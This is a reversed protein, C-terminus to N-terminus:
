LARLTVTFSYPKDAPYCYKPLTPAGWSDDGGVGKRFMAVDLVTKVPGMLDSCHRAASLQEPLWPQVSIELNDGMVLVGHQDKDTVSLSQVGGRNGSEQPNLYPSMGDKVRYLHWGLYAGERRDVYNEAPGYGYYNVTDLRPDLQFSLGLAPMDPLDPVGPWNVTVEVADQSRVTYVVSMEFDKLMPTTYRYTLRTCGDETEVHAYSRHNYRSILHYVGQRVSYGNGDDNDTSARFLSLQPACLLTERGARDRFSILGKGREFLVGMKDSRLGVNGDSLVPRPGDNHFVPAEPEGYITQGHSLITGAPLIGTDERLVLYCTLVVQGETPLKGYPLSIHKSEGPAIEPLMIEGAKVPKMDCEVTWRVAYGTLPAFLKRNWVTVGTKGPKLFVDRYLYRVDQTKASPTRDALVIGNGIFQWDCPKDGFDGGYAFREQGNPAVTRLGQDIYDWIFGGQYMPYKDELATYESMGGLSNGMAHMYECNIFPRQPDNKLYREIDAAKLYMHSLMDSTHRYREDHVCSEYHVLRTPDTKRFYESLDFLNCGGWAENGCSWMLVCAHNKDRELMYRGRNLVAEHWEPKDGPVVWDHWPAWSGHTEINTEDIVYLGYEDCARYFATMNPYHSTRIANINLSKCIQIDKLLTERSVVRGHDCDFEHRNVGHFVIRKGNLCMIKDIMEFQRFGVWTRSVETVQGMANTLTVTLPYLNPTEASWLKVGPIVADFQVQMQGTVPRTEEYLVKGERDTLTVRAQGARGAVTLLADLHATTYNDTLPTRVRIDALHSEPWFHLSVSRHIGSYRWFDQDELWSGSCRKFIRLALRNEGVRVFPTINFAHATFSDECYGVEHGNVYVLVAAEAGALHLVIRHQMDKLSLTFPKVCTVTPNYESSVEPPTLAEHGDWPYQVNVYQPPDWEPAVLQFECPISIERLTADLSSGKLLENPADAPNMAFHAKWAGDLSRVLSSVGSEAEQLTAYFDHDSCPPLVNVLTIKPDALWAPTFKEGRATSM